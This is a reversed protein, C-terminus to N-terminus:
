RTAGHSGRGIHAVLYPRALSRPFFNNTNGLRAALEHDDDDDLGNYDAETAVLNLKHAGALMSLHYHRRAFM